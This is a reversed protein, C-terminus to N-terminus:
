ALARLTNVTDYIEFQNLLVMKEHKTSYQIELIAVIIAKPSFIKKKCYRSHLM